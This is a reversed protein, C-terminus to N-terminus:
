YKEIVLSYTSNDFKRFDLLISHINGDQYIDYDFRRLTSRGFISCFLSHKFNDQDVYEIYLCSKPIIIQYNDVFSEVNYKTKLYICTGLKRYRDTTFGNRVIDVDISIDHCLNDKRHKLLKNMNNYKTSYKNAKWKLKGTKPEIFPTWQLDQLQAYYELIINSVDSPIHLSM